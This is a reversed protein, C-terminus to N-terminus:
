PRVGGPHPTGTSDHALMAIQEQDIEWNREQALIEEQVPALRLHLQLVSQSEQRRAIGSGPGTIVSDDNCSRGDVEDGTEFSQDESAVDKCDPQAVTETVQSDYEILSEIM